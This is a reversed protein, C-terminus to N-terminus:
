WPRAQRRVARQSGNKTGCEQMRGRIVCSRADPSPLLLAQM